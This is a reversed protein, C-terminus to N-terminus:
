TEINAIIWDVYDSVNLYLGEISHVVMGFQVYRHGNYLSPSVAPAGEVVNFTAENELCFLSRNWTDCWTANLHYIQINDFKPVDNFEGGWSTVEYATFNTRKLDPSLPM